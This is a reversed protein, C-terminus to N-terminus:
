SMQGLNDGEEGEENDDDENVGNGQGNVGAEENDNEGDDNLKDDNDVNALKRALNEGSRLDNEDLPRAVRKGSTSKPTNDSLTRPLAANRKYYRLFQGVFLILQRETIM